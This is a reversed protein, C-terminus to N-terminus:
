QVRELFQDSLSQEGEGAGLSAPEAEVAPQSTDFEEQVGELEFRSPQLTRGRVVEELQQGGLQPLPQLSPSWTGLPSYGRLEVKKKTVPHEIVHKVIKSNKIMSKYQSLTELIRNREGKTPAQRAADMMGDLVDDTLEINKGLWRYIMAAKTTAFMNDTAVTRILDQIINRPKNKNVLDSFHIDGVNKALRKMAAVESKDDFILDMMEPDQEIKKFSKRWESELFIGSKPDRASNLNDLVWENRVNLWEFSDGGVLRKYAATNPTSKFLKRGFDLSTQKKSFVKRIEDYDAKKESFEKLSERWLRGEPSASENFVEAFAKNRDERTANTINNLMRMEKKGLLTAPEKGRKIMGEFVDVFDLTSKMNVGGDLKIKRLIKNYKNVMRQLVANGGQAGFGFEKNFASETLKRQINKDPDTVVWLGEADVDLDDVDIKDPDFFVAEGNQKFFVDNDALEEQIKRMAFEPEYLNEGSLAVAEKKMLGISEGLRKQHNDIVGYGREAAEGLGKTPLPPPAGVKSPKIKGVGLVKAGDQLEAMVKALKKAKITPFAEIAGKLKGFAFGPTRAVGKVVGPAIYATGTAWALERGLADNANKDQFEDPFIGRRAAVGAVGAIAPAALALAPAAVPGVPTGATAGAAMLALIETPIGAAVEVQAGFTDAIFDAASLEREDYPVWPKGVRERYVLEGDRMKVNKSGKAKVLPRLAEERTVGLSGTARLLWNNVKNSFTQSEGSPDFDEGTLELIAQEAENALSDVDEDLESVGAAARIESSGMEAKVNLLAVERALEEDSIKTEQDRGGGPPNGFHLADTRNKEEARVNNVAGTIFRAISDATVAPQVLPALGGALDLAGQPAEAFTKGAGELIGGLSTEEAEEAPPAQEPLAEEPAAQEAQPLGIGPLDLQNKEDEGPIPSPVDGPQVNSPVQPFPQGINLGM